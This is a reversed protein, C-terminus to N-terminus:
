GMRGLRISPTFPVDDASVVHRGADPRVEGHAAGRDHQGGLRAGRERSARVHKAVTLAARQVDEPVSAPRMALATGVADLLGAVLSVLQPREVNLGEPRSRLTWAAGRCADVVEREDYEVQVHRVL